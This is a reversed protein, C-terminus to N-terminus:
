GSLPRFHKIPMQVQMHIITASVSVENQVNTGLASDKYTVVLYKAPTGSTQIKILIITCSSVVTEQCNYPKSRFRGKHINESPM